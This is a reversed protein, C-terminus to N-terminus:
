GRRRSKSQDRLGQVQAAAPEKCVPAIRVASEVPLIESEKGVQPRGLKRGCSPEEDKSLKARRRLSSTNWFTEFKM